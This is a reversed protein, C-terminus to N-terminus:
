PDERSTDLPLTFFVTTGRGEVSEAWILGGHGEVLQRAIPLGLGLGGVRKQSGIRFYKEFLRNLHEAPIGKGQDAIGVVVHDPQVRG